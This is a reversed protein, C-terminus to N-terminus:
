RALVIIGLVVVVGVLIWLVRSRRPEEQAFADETTSAVQARETAPEAETAAQTVATTPEAETAAQPAPTAPVAVPQSPVAVLPSAAVESVLASSATPTQASAVSTVLLLLVVPVTIRM